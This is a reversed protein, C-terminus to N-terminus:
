KPSWEEHQSSSEVRGIETGIKRVRDINTSLALPTDLTVGLYFATDVLRIPQRFLQVERTKQTRSRANSLLM